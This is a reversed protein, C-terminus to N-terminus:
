AYSPTRHSAVHPPSEIVEHRSVFGVVRAGNKEGGCPMAACSLSVPEAPASSSWLSARLPPPPPTLRRPRLSRALSGGPLTAITFTSSASDARSGFSASSHSFTLVSLVFRGNPSAAARGRCRFRESSPSTRGSRARQVGGGCSSGGDRTHTRARGARCGQSLLAKVM